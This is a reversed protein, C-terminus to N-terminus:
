GSLKVINAAQEFVFLSVRRYVSKNVFKVASDCLVCLLRLSFDM